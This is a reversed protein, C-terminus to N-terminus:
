VAKQHTGHPKSKWFVLVIIGFIVLSLVALLPHYQNVALYIAVPVAKPKDYLFMYYYYVYWVNIFNIVAMALYCGVLWKSRLLFAGALLFSFFPFLYREHVRTPFLFFAFAFLAAALYPTAPHHRKKFYLFSTLLLAVLYLIRGWTAYPLGHWVTLDNQWWGIIAWLNMAYLSTFSYDKSMQVVLKYLGFIVDHPFFLASMALYLIACAIIPKILKQYQHHEILTFVIMPLLAISQPKILFAMTYSLFGKTISKLEYLSYISLFLFFALVGDVQGWASTNIISAPNALYLLGGWVALRESTHKKIVQYVLFATGFDFLTTTLKLFIEFSLTFTSLGQLKFLLGFIWLFLLYGPTYNTWLSPSYFAWPGTEALRGAWAQWATMDIAFSPIVFLAVRLAIVALFAFREIPKLPPM